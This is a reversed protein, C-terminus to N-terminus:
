DAYIPRRSTSALSGDAGLLFVAHDVQIYISQDSEDSTRGVAGSAEVDRFVRCRHGLALLAAVVKRQAPLSYAYAWGVTTHVSEADMWPANAVSTYVRWAALLSASSVARMTESFTLEWKEVAAHSSVRRVTGFDALVAEITGCVCCAFTLVVTGGSLFEMQEFQNDAFFKALTTTGIM